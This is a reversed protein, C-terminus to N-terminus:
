PAPDRPRARKALFEQLRQGEDTAAFEAIHTRLAAVIAATEEPSGAVRILVQDAQPYSGISADPYQADLETLILALTSEPFTHTLEERSLVSGTGVLFRPEVVETFVSQLERPPGPLIVVHTTGTTVVAAPIVGSAALLAEAGAPAMAMKRLGDVGMGAPSFGEDAIHGLLREIREAIPACEELGVGLGLAVGEMTRDDHTPGLGGCVFVLDAGGAIEDRVEDAIARPVDPVVVIRRLRHGLVSLREAIFAGNAERVHGSLIEDGVVM